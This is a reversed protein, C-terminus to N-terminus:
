NDKAPTASSLLHTVGESELLETLDSRDLLKVGHDDARERVAEPVTATTVLSVVDAPSQDAACRDIDAPSLAGEPDHVVWVAMRLDVPTEVTAMVDYKGSSAGFVTTEWGLAQWTDAVLRRCAERDLAELSAALGDPGAEQLTDEGAPELSTWEDTDDEAAVGDAAREDAASVDEEDDPPPLAVTGSAGDTEDESASEIRERADEVAGLYVDLVGERDPALETVADRAAELHAEAVACASLAPDTAGRVEFTDAASLARRTAAIRADVVGDVIDLIREEIADSDGVFFATPGWSLGLLERYRDLAVRYARAAPLPRERSDAREYAAQAVSQPTTALEAEESHVSSLRERLSEGDPRDGDYTLAREYADRADAYASVADGYDGVDQATRADRRAADGVTAHARRRLADIRGSCDTLGAMEPVRSGVDYEALRDRGGVVM